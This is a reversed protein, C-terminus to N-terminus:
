FSIKFEAGATPAIQWNSNNDAEGGIGADIYLYSFYKIVPVNAVPLFQGVNWAVVGAVGDSNLMELDISVGWPAYTVITAGATNVWQKLKFNYALGEKVGIYNIIATADTLITSNTVVPAVVVSETAKAKVTTTSGVANFIDARAIGALAFIMIVFSLLVKRM